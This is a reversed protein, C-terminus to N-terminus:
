LMEEIDSEILKTLRDNPKVGNRQCKAIWLKMLEIDQAFNYYKKGVLFLEESQRLKRGSAKWEEIAEKTVPRKEKIKKVPEGIPQKKIIKVVVRKRDEM